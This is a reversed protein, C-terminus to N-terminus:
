LSIQHTIQQYFNVTYHVIETSYYELLPLAWKLASNYLLAKPEAKKFKKRKLSGFKNFKESFM